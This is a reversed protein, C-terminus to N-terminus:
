GCRRWLPLAAPRTLEGPLVFRKAVSDMAAATVKAVYDEHTPYLRNLV